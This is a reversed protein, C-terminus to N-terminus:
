SDQSLNLLQRQRKERPGSSVFTFFIECKQRLFFGLSFSVFLISFVLVFVSSTVPLNRMKINGFVQCFKPPVM